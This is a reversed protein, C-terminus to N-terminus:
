DFQGYVNVCHKGRNDEDKEDGGLDNSNWIRLETSATVRKQPGYYILDKSSMKYASKNDFKVDAVVPNMTVGPPFIVENDTNTVLTSLQTKDSNCTWISSGFNPNTYSCTILGSVHELKLSKLLENRQFTFNAYRNGRGEYCVKSVILRWGELHLFNYRSFNIHFFQLIYNIRWVM